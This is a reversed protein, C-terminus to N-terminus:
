DLCGPYTKKLYNRLKKRAESLHRRVTIVECELIESVDQTSYGELDKLIFAMRQRDPLEQLCDFIGELLSKRDLNDLNPLGESYQSADKQEFWDELPVNQETKRTHQRYYDVASNVAIRGLWAEFSRDNQYTDLYRYARLFTEQAIDQADSPNGCYKMAIGFVKKEFRKVVTEFAASDGRRIRRILFQIDDHPVIM